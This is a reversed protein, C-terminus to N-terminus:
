KNWVGQSLYIGFTPTRGLAIPGQESLENALLVVSPSSVFQRHDGCSLAM